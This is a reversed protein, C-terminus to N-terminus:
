LRKENEAKLVGWEGSKGGKKGVVRTGGIVCGKDVSKCMDVVTLAAGVVGALAEMEVGTKGVCETQVRIKVGGHPGLGEGTNKSRAGAREEQKEEKGAKGNDVLATSPGLCEVEVDCGEIGIGGHALPILAPTNKVAMIAAVRAVALVDGKKMKNESILALPERNSFTVHGEAIAIRHTPTKDSVSIQHVSGTSTLHPLQQVAQKQAPTQVRPPSSNSQPRFKSAKHTSSFLRHNLFSFLSSQPLSSLPHSLPVITRNFPPQSPSVINSAMPQKLVLSPIKTNSFSTPRCPEDIHRRTLWDLTFALESPLLSFLQLM